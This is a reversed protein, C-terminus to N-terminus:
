TMRPKARIYAQAAVPLTNTQTSAHNVCRAEAVAAFLKARENWGQKRGEDFGEARGAARGAARGEERAERWCAAGQIRGAAFGEESGAEHGERWGEQYGLARGKEGGVRLGEARAAEHTDARARWDGWEADEDRLCGCSPAIGM